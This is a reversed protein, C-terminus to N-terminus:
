KDHSKKLNIQINFFRKIINLLFLIGIVIAARQPWPAYIDWISIIKYYIAYFINAPVVTFYLKAAAAVGITTGGGGSTKKVPQSELYAFYDGPAIRIPLNLKINVAQVKKPDLHFNQPSFIFWNQPPRLQPQQTHYSVLVKYDSPEDGTNVVVLPPLRYIVGPKLKDEVQIKGTGVGVGITAFVSAPFVILLLFVFFLFKNM